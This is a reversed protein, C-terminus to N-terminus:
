GAPHFLLNTLSLPIIQSWPRLRHKPCAKALSRTPKFRSWGPFHSTYKPVHRAPSSCSASWPPIRATISRVFLFSHSPRPRSRKAAGSRSAGSAKAGGRLPAGEGFHLGHPSSFTNGIHHPCESPRAGVKLQMSAALLKDRFLFARQPLPNQRCALRDTARM